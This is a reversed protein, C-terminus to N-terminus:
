KGGQVVVKLSGRDPASRDNDCRIIQDSGVQIEDPMEMWGAIQGRVRCLVCTVGQVGAASQAATELASRELSQGFKFNNHNFFGGPSSSLTTLVAAEVDGRYAGALACIEIVLDLSVYQPRPVYVEYGAMRYRNLLNILETQQTPTAQETDRPDPTTFVTQWSGTWRFVTGARAVWPLTQAATEYDAPLVARYQVARFAQPACRQIHAISEADAGGTAAFPNTVSLVDAMPAGLRTISDPAVNGGAGVGVRYIIEFKTDDLPVQGFNEDGFRITNGGSGNYDFVTVTPQGLSAPAPPDITKAIPDYNVPDITFANAFTDADLLSTEFQWISPEGGPPTGTLIIEPTPPDEDSAAALWALPAQSLTFLYQLAPQAATDNPGTRAVALPLTPWSTTASPIAFTESVQQPLPTAATTSLITVGQTAPILNGALITQTLDRNFQLQDVPEWRILTVATPGELGPPSAGCVLVPISAPADTDYPQLFLPDCLETAPQDSVLHVVQRIPPDASTAGATEILLPQGPQFNYGIGLVYMQTAGAPLCRQSDDFWYPQIVGRNWAANVTTTPPISRRAGSADLYRNVLSGGTEFPITAADPGPACVLLGDPLTTVGPAVDFQLLVTAVLAPVPEYDVLRALRVISRRQTATELGAEAAVRDQQYSLDDALSSLAELFMVGFDAESREQWEPYRLASFDLLAQRFGLFDKSLYDIPPVDATETPCQVPPTQCDLDSSCRAKFSFIAQNYFVDLMPSSLALTYNSFDGPAAVTLTLVLHDDDISWANNDDIANVSVVPVTEGGTITPTATFTGRLSVTNFFHVRLGTQSRNAIEVFDIGNYRADAALLLSKRDKADM